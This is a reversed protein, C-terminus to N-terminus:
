RPGFNLQDVMGSWYASSANWRSSCPRGRVRGSIASIMRVELWWGQDGSGRITSQSSRPSPESNPGTSRAPVSGASTMASPVREFCSYPLDIWYERVLRVWHSRRYPM